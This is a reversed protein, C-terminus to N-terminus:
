VTRAFEGIHFVPSKRFHWRNGIQGSRERRKEEQCGAQQQPVDLLDSDFSTAQPLYTYSGPDCRFVM